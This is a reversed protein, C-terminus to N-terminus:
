GDENDRVARTRAVELHLDNAVLVAIGDGETATVAGGLAAELLDELLARREDRRVVDEVLHHLLRDVEAAGDAVLRRAGYLPHVLRSIVLEEEKLEVWTKLDLVRDGLADGVDRQGASLEMHRHADREVIHGLHAAEPACVIIANALDIEGVELRRGLIGLVNNSRADGSLVGVLAELGGRALNVADIELGVGLHPAIEGDDGVTTHVLKGVRLKAVQEGGALRAFLRALGENKRQLLEEDHAVNAGGDLVEALEKLGLLELLVRDVRGPEVAENGGLRNRGLRLRHLCDDVGSDVTAVAKNLVRDRSELPRELFALEGRECQALHRLAHGEVDGILVDLVGERNRRLCGVDEVELQERGALLDFDARTLLGVSRKVDGIAGLCM